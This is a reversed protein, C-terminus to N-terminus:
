TSSMRITTNKELQYRERSRSLLVSRRPPRGRPLREWYTSYDRCAVARVQSGVVLLTAKCFCFHIALQSATADLALFLSPIVYYRQAVVPRLLTYPQLPVCAHKAHAAM